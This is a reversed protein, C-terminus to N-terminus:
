QIHSNYLTFVTINQQRLPLVRCSAQGRSYHEGSDEGNREKRKVDKRNRWFVNASGRKHGNSQNWLHLFCLKFIIRGVSSGGHCFYKIRHDNPGWEPAMPSCSLMGLPNGKDGSTQSPTCGVEKWETGGGSPGVTGCALSWAEWM